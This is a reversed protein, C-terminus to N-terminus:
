PLLKVVLEQLTQMSILLRGYTIFLLVVLNPVLMLFSVFMRNFYLVLLTLSGVILISRKRTRKKLVSFYKFQFLEKILVKSIWRLILRFNPLTNMFILLFM